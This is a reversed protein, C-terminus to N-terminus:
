LINSVDVHTPNFTFNHHGNNVGENCSYVHSKIFKMNNGPSACMSDFYTTPNFYIIYSLKTQCYSIEEFQLLCLSIASM